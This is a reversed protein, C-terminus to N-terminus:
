WGEPLRNGHPTSAMYTVASFASSHTETTDQHVLNRRQRRRGDVSRLDGCWGVDMDHRTSTHTSRTQVRSHHEGERSPTVRGDGEHLYGQTERKVSALTENQKKKKCQESASPVVASARGLTSRSLTRLSREGCRVDVDSRAQERVQLTGSSARTVHSLVCCPVSHM